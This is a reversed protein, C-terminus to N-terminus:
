SPIEADRTIFGQSHRFDKAPKFVSVVTAPIPTPLSMGPAVKTVVGALLFFVPPQMLVEAKNGRGFDPTQEGYWCLHKGWLLLHCWITHLVTALLVTKLLNLRSGLRKRLAGSSKKQRNEKQIINQPWWEGKHRMQPKKSGHPYAASLDPFICLNNRRHYTGKTYVRSLPLM